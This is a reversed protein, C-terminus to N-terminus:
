LYGLGRLSEEIAAEEEESYPSQEDGPASSLATTTEVPRNAMTEVDFAGLV